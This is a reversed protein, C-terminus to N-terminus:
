FCQQCESIVLREVLLRNPAQMLFAVDLNGIRRVHLGPVLRFKEWDGDSLFSCFQQSSGLCAVIRVPCPSTLLLNSDARDYQRDESKGGDKYDRFDSFENAQIPRGLIPGCGHGRALFLM